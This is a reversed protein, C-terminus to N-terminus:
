KFFKKFESSACFPDEVSKEFKLSALRMEHPTGLCVVRDSEVFLPQVFHEELIKNYLPAVYLEVDLDKGSQPGLADLFVAKSGWGYLGVSAWTSIRMKEATEVVRSNEISAFSWHDGCMRAVAFFNGSPKQGELWQELLITDGNWIAFDGESLHMLGHRSSEAQGSTPEKLFSIDIREAFACEMLVREVFKRHEQLAVLRIAGVEMECAVSEIALNLVYNGGFRLAWKPTETLSKFRASRGAIPVVLDM